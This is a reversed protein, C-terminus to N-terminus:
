VLRMDAPRPSARREGREAGGIRLPLAQDVDVRECCGLLAIPDELAGHRQRGIIAAAEHGQRIAALVRLFQALEVEPGPPKARVPEAQRLGLLTGDPEIAVVQADGAIPPRARQGPRATPKTPYFETTARQATGTP